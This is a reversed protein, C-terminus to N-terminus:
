MKRGTHRKLLFTSLIKLSKACKVRAEAPELIHHCALVVDELLWFLFLSAHDYVVSLQQEQLSQPQRPLFCIELDIRLQWGVKWPIELPLKFSGLSCPFSFSKKFEKKMHIPDTQWTTIIVVVFTHILIKEDLKKKIAGGGEGGERSKDMSGWCEATSSSWHSSSWRLTHLCLDNLAWHRTNKFCGAVLTRGVAAWFFSSSFINICVKTTTLIIVYCVWNLFFSTFFFQTKKKPSLLVSTQFLNVGYWTEGTNRCQLAFFSFILHVM